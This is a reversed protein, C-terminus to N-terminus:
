LKLLEPFCTLPTAAQRQLPSLGCVIQLWLVTRLLSHSSVSSIGRCTVRHWSQIWLGDFLQRWLTDPMQATWLLTQLWRGRAPWEELYINVNDQQHLFEPGLFNLLSSVAIAYWSRLEFVEHTIMLCSCRCLGDQLASEMLPTKVEGWKCFHMEERM